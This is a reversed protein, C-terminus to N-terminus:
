PCLFSGHVPMICAIIPPKKKFKDSNESVIFFFCMSNKSVIFFVNGLKGVSYFLKGRLSPLLWRKTINYPLSMVYINYVM